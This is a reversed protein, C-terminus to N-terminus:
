WMVQLCVLVLDHNRDRHLAPLLRFWVVNVGDAQLARGHGSSKGTLGGRIARPACESVYLPTLMSAAGVGFGAVLRGVYMYTLSGRSAAQFAVGLCTMVGAGVLPWKRGFKDAILSSQYHASYETYQTQRIIRQSRDPAPSSATCTRDSKCLLLRSPPNVCSPLSNKDALQAISTLSQLQHFCISNESLM